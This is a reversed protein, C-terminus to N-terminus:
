ERSNCFVESEINCIVHSNFLMYLVDAAFSLNVYSANVGYM